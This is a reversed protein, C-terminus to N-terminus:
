TNGKRRGNRNHEQEHSNEEKDEPKSGVDSDNFMGCLVPMMALVILASAQFLITIDM